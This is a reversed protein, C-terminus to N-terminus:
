LSDKRNPDKSRKVALYSPLTSEPTEPEWGPLKYAQLKEAFNKNTSIKSKIFEKTVNATNLPDGM